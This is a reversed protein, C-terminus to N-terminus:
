SGDATQKLRERERRNYLLQSKTKLVQQLLGINPLESADVAKTAIRLEEEAKMFENMYMYCTARHILATPEKDREDPNIVRSFDAIANELHTHIEKTRAEQKMEHEIVEEPSLDDLNVRPAHEKEHITREVFSLSACGRRFIAYVYDDKVQLAKTYEAVAEPFLHQDEYAKGLNAMAYYNNENLRVASRLDNIVAGFDASKLLLGPPKKRLRCVGRM